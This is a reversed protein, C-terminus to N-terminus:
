LVGQVGNALLSLGSFMVTILVLRRFVVQNLRDHIFLGLWQGIWALPVMALSFVLPGGVLM